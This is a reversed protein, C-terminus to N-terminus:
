APQAAWWARAAEVDAAIGARLADLSAYRREEHLWHLLEVRVLAGYGADAGLSPPWDLVHAELLLMGSEEYFTPRRGLSLAAPREVDDEGIYTGVYVGDAPLCLREPVALNATPFGLERGRGDGREVRGRV